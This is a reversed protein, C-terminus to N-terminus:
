LYRKEFGTVIDGWSLKNGNVVASDFGVGLYYVAAGVGYGDVLEVLEGPRNPGSVIKNARTLIRNAQSPEELDL